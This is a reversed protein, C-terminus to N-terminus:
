FYDLLIQNIKEYSKNLDLALNLLKIYGMDINDLKKQISESNLEILSLSLTIEDIIDSKTLPNNNSSNSFAKLQNSQKM